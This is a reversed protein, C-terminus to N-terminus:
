ASRRVYVTGHKALEEVDGQDALQQLRELQRITTADFYIEDPDDDPRTAEVEVRVVCQTGHIWETRRVRQGVM